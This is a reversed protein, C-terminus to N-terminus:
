WHSRKCIFCAGYRRRRAARATDISETDAFVHLLVQCSLQYPLISHLKTSECSGCSCTTIDTCTHTTVRSVLRWRLYIVDVVDVHCSRASHINDGFYRAELFDDEITKKFQESNAAMAITQMCYSLNCTITRSLITPLMHLPAHLDVRFIYGSDLDLRFSASDSWMSQTSLIQWRSNLLSKQRLALECFLFLFVVVVNPFIDKICTFFLYLTPLFGPRFCFNAGLRCRVVCWACAVGDNGTSYRYQVLCSDLSGLPEQM